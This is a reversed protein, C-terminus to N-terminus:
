KRLMENFVRKNDDYVGVLFLVFRVDVGISRSFQSSWKYENMLGQRQRDFNVAVLEGKANMVPSGSNGGVTDTSYLLCCPVDAKSPDSTVLDALRQPCDFESLDGGSGVKADEAKDLLGGITTKPLHKVADAADYGSVHGASIRLTGNCDPYFVVDEGAHARQLEILKAFLEDRESILAREKDRNRVYVDYISEAAKVFRDKKVTEIADVDGAMAKDLFTSLVKHSSAVSAGIDDGIIDAFGALEDFESAGKIADAIDERDYPQVVDNLARGYYKVLRALNRERYRSEREGDAKACENNVFENLLHGATLLVSGGYIGQLADQAQTLPSMEKLEDYIAALRDFADKAEKGAKVILDAEEATREEILKLKRMMVIKGKCRKFENSLGKKRGKLKLAADPSAKEHKTIMSLKRGFDKVSAPVAVEDAFKLRSAPAYRMTNGPFGLLFVFDDKEAGKESVVISSRPKYPINDESYPSPSGDPSAYARLLAFDATHRPWEFNDTDGGFNGLSKPPSYVIRVDLLRTKTFLVYSENPLMEQVDCRVSGESGEPTLAKQAEAAITQKCDRVANARKLPDVEAKLVALVKESVDVCSTTIWCEYPSKIEEAQSNASFGEMLYDKDGASLSAVRVAEHAVHWNTIILGNESIFSGTGGSGTSGVSVLAESFTPKTTASSTGDIEEANIKIGMEKLLPFISKTATIPWTRFRQQLMSSM